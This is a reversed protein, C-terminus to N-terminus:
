GRGRTRQRAKRLAEVMGEEQRKEAPPAVPPPSGSADAVPPAALRAADEQGARRAPGVPEGPAGAVPPALAPRAQRRPRLRAATTEVAEWVLYGQRSLLGTRRELVELLLLVVALALLWPGVPVLRAQRPLEKWIGALDVREKGGTARAMRELAPLGRDAEAPQYEPSYPLCVPPLAVPDSGPVEVTALATETGHLPVEAALTDPGSWRLTTKETKPVEGPRAALVTLKPLSTFAEGKREPDLHLQVLGVGNRVEQTVLMNKPLNGSQGAAWRALSTFYHGVDPWATIPGAFKGDAEGTYCLVRGTGAQWAAVVPAKYEDETVAGLTAAPRLYCLNYGGIPRAIDFARGTLAELAPTAQVRVPEDLFTNRAVVFTDEAFLRPLEEPKDSFFVRGDGRKAIDRLLDADHDKETGLGIVSVTIGAERCRAVLTKYDGPEESDNADAFLIIHKTAAKAPQVMEAAAKLAEYIFIGGGMSEIKLIDGRVPDKDKVSSLPAIVHPITDVAICGFEDMPGLLDLVEVTGRNALDMKCRGGGVPVAMSGSRDLAVVIAVSLKRHENRLEMSVPLIPELPSKYYGGQGYSRQGGTMMLGSGTERVWTALTDMGAGGIKEAAVNELLVCSYKSLEELTWACAEPSAERISLKGARLLKALGSGKSTHVHLLPRPGHVGVLVRATNNEPVPDDSTGTVKLTYSHTGGETSRDRFTLRNLGGTLQQQGSALVHNGRRLECAVSQAVPSQVWATVLFAEGPAVVPPADIRAIALDNAVSRQLPRYDIALGRAAARAVVGAPDSGTWRGDSLVLVKGPADPPVLSLATQLADALNSGDGGVEQLFGPFKGVDPAREVRAAQGFSVVALRDDRGMAGQILDIAEKQAAESGPPMSLSRDAVVVVTGDRSPLRLALGCLALLVLATAACRLGLLLRSPLPWRWLSLGLPILLFLWIPHLLLV